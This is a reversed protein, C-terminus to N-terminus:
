AISMWVNWRSAKPGKFWRFDYVLVCNNTPLLKQLWSSNWVIFSIGPFPWSGWCKLVSLCLVPDKPVHHNKFGQEKRGGRMKEYLFGMSQIAGSVNAPIWLPITAKATESQSLAKSAMAIVGFDELNGVRGPYNFPNWILNCWPWNEQNLWSELWFSYYM